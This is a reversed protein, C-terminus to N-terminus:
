AAPAIIVSEDLDRELLWSIVDRVSRYPGVTPEGITLAMPPIEASAQIFVNIVPSEDDIIEADEIDQDYFPTEFESAYGFEDVYTSGIYTTGHDPEVYTPRPWEGIFCRSRARQLEAILQDLEETDFERAIHNSDDIRGFGIYTTLEGDVDSLNPVIEIKGVEDKLICETVGNPHIDTAGWCFRYSRELM